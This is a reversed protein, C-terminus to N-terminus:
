IEANGYCLVFGYSYFHGGTYIDFQFLSPKGKYDIDLRFNKKHWFGIRAGRLVTRKAMDIAKVLNSKGSANAGFIFGSKLIRKGAETEYVHSGHRRIKGAAMKFEQLDKFSLFNETAFRLLM